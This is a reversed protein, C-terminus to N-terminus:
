AHATRSLKTSIYFLLPLGAAWILSLFALAMFYEVGFTVSGLHEGTAYSLPFGTAGALVILSVHKKLFALSLPLTSVFALWLLMLWPPIPTTNHEFKFIGTLTLLSDVLIGLLAPVALQALNIRTYCVLLLCYIIVLPMVLWLLQDEGVVCGLWFLNFLVINLWKSSIVSRM